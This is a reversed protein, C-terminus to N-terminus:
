RQSGNLGVPSEQYEILSLDQLHDMQRKASIAAVSARENQWAASEENTTRFSRLNLNGTDLLLIGEWVAILHAVPCGRLMLAADLFMLRHQDSPLLDYSKRLVALLKEGTTKQDPYFCALM